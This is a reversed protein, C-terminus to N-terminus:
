AARAVCAAAEPDFPNTRAALSFLYPYDEQLHALYELWQAVLVPFVRELDGALHALDAEPLAGLDGREELEQALHFTAWLVDTFAEHELVSPNAMIGTLVDRRGLLLERVRGLADPRPEVSARHRRARAAAARLERPGFSAARRLEARLGDAGRDLALSSAILGDGVEAFFVGVVMNLKKLRALKERRGLLGDVILTVLLLQFPVFALSGLFWQSVLAADGHVSWLFLWYLLASAGALALALLVKWRARNM